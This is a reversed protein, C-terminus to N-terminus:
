RQEPDKELSFSAPRWRGIAGSNASPTCTQRDDRLHGPNDESVERTVGAGPHPTCLTM